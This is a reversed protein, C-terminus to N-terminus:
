SFYQGNQVQEHTACYITTQAGERVDKTILRWIPSFVYFLVSAVNKKEKLERYIETRVAGPHLSVSVIGDKGYRDALERTFLINALKAQCYASVNSYKKDTKLREWNIKGDKLVLIYFRSINLYFRMKYYYKQSGM